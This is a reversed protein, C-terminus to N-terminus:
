TFIYLDVVDLIYILSWLLDKTGDVVRARHYVAGRPVAQKIGMVCVMLLQTQNISPKLETRPVSYTRLLNDTSHSFSYIFLHGEQLM